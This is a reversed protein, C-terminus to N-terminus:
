FPTDLEEPIEGSYKILWSTVQVIPINIPKGDEGLIPDGVPKEGAAKKLSKEEETLQTRYVETRGSVIAQMLFGTMYERDPNELDIETLEEGPHAKNWFEAYSAIGGGSLTYFSSRLSLGSLNYILGNKEVAGLLQGKNEGSSPFWGVLESDMTIMPNGNSNPGFKHGTVRVLCRESFAPPLSSKAIKGLKVISSKTSETPQEVTQEETM